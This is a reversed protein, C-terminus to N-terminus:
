MAWHQFVRALERGWIAENSDDSKLDTDKKVMDFFGHKLLDGGKPVVIASLLPRGEYYEALSIQGLLAALAWRRHPMPRLDVAHVARAVPAAVGDVYTLLRLERAASILIDQAVVRAAVWDAQQFGYTKSWWTPRRQAQGMVVYRRFVAVVSATPEM